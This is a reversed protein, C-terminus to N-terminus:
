GRKKEWKLITNRMEESVSNPDKKYADLQEKVWVSFEKKFRRRGIKATIIKNRLKPYKDSNESCFTILYEEIAPVEFGHEVPLPLLGVYRTDKAKEKAKEKILCTGQNNKFYGRLRTKLNRGSSAKGIYLFNEESDLFIYVGQSSGSPWSKPWDNEIDYWYVILNSIGPRPYVKQFEALIEEFGLKSMESVM